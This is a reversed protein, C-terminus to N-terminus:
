SLFLFAPTTKSPSDVHRAKLGSPEAWVGLAASRDTNLFSMEWPAAWGGSESDESVHPFPSLLHMHAPGRSCSPKAFPDQCSCALLVKNTGHNCRPWYSCSLLLLQPLPDSSCALGWLVVSQKEKRVLSTVAGHSNHAPKPPTTKFIVGNFLDWWEDAADMSTRSPAMCLVSNLQLELLEWSRRLECLWPLLHSVPEPICHVAHRHLGLLNEYQFGWGLIYEIALGELSPYTM